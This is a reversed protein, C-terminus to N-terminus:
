RTRQADQFQRLWRAVADDSPSREQGGPNAGPDRNSDLIGAAPLREQFRDNWVGDPLGPESGDSAVPNGRGLREDLTQLYPALVEQLEAPMIAESRDLLLAIYHGSKSQVIKQRSPEGLLTVAFLTIVACWLVGRCFGLVAGAHRDFEKFKIRDIVESVFRFALWIAASASLYVILMALFKNWPPEAKIAAAVPQHFHYAIFYSAVISSISAVQWALGKRAGFVTAAALVALMVLDYTEMIEPEWPHRLIATAPWHAFLLRNVKAEARAAPITEAATQLRTTDASM